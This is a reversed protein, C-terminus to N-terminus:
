TTLPPPASRRHPPHARRRGLGEKELRDVLQTINSRVCNQLQALESLPLPEKAEALQHLLALKALSLGMPSVAAELRAEVADATELFSSVLTSASALRRGAKAPRKSMAGDYRDDSPAAWGGGGGRSM